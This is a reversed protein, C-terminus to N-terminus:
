FIQILPMNLFVKGSGAGPQLFQLSYFFIHRPLLQM